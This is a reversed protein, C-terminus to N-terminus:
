MCFYLSFPVTFTIEFSGGHLSPLARNLVNGKFANKIQWYPNSILMKKENLTNIERTLFVDTDEVNKM